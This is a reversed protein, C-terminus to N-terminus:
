RESIPPVVERVVLALDVGRGRRVAIAVQHRASPRLREFQWSAPEDDLEPAFAIRVPGSADLTFSFQDLPIALGMGRAKIYAEKLTWYDFFRERQESPPLTRLALVERPAFFDAAIELTPRERATDEVDVGVDRALAVACVVLGDTHALNFRLPPAGEPRDIEPRGWTNARFTWDRPDVDAYRSLTTRVLARAVLQETRTREFHCAEVRAREEPSLLESWRAFLTRHLGLAEPQVLWLHVEDSPLALLEAM